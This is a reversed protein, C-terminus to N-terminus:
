SLIRRTNHAGVTDINTQHLDLAQYRLVLTRSSHLRAM